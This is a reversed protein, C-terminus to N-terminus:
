VYVHLVEAIVFKLLGCMKLTPTSHLPYFFISKLPYSAMDRFRHSTPGHNKNIVLLFPM